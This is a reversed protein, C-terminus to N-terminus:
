FQDFWNWIPTRYVDRLDHHYESPTSDECWVVPKGPACNDYQICGLGELGFKSVPKSSEACGNIRVWEDRANRGNQVSENDDDDRHYILAATKRCDTERAFGGAAPAVARLTPRRCALHNVMYAGYSFGLAFVRQENVCHTSKVDDLLADFFKLDTEGALDWAGNVASPFVVIANGASYDQMKIFDAMEPGTAGIGHFTAVMPYARQPDYDAPVYLVFSREAGDVTVTKLVGVESEGKGCGISRTPLSVESSDPQSSDEVIASADPDRPDGAEVSADSGTATPSEAAGGCRLNLLALAFFPLAFLYTTSRM